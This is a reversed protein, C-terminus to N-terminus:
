ALRPKKSTVEDDDEDEDGAASYARKSGSESSSQALRAMPMLADEQDDDNDSVNAAKAKGSSSGGVKTKGDELLNLVKTLLNTLTSTALTEDQAADREVEKSVRVKMLTERQAEWLSIVQSHMWTVQSNTSSKVEKIQSNLEVIRERLDACETQMIEIAEDFPHAQDPADGVAMSRLKALAIDM